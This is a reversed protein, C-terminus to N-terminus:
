AIHLPFPNPFMKGLLIKAIIAWTALWDGRAIHEITHQPYEVGSRLLVHQLLAM